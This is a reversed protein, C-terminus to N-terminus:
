RAFEDKKLSKMLKCLHSSVLIMEGITEGGLLNNIQLPITTVLKQLEKFRRQNKGGTKEAVFNDV